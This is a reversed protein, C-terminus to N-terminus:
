MSANPASKCTYLTIGEVPALKTIPTNDEMISLTGNVAANNFASMAMDVASHIANVYATPTPPENSIIPEDAPITVM